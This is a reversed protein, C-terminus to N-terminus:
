VIRGGRWRKMLALAAIFGACGLGAMALFAGGEYARYLPGAALSVLGMVVGATISAYLGQASASLASPIAQQLFQMAGLHAAGFTIGHLAQAAFLVPLAPDLATVAWRLMSAFGAVAILQVPGLWRGVKVGYAFLVIEAVVGIGWLAGIVAPQIGAATWHLTGFIYYLAHASQIASAAALFIWLDPKRMLTVMDAFRLVPRAMEPGEANFRRIVGDAPLLYAAAVVLVASSIFLWLAAPPGWIDVAAGGAATMAIYSLSGWLRMRGYDARGARVGALAVADTVPIVSMWFVTFLLVVIFIQPFGDTWPLLSASLLSGWSLLTLLGAPRGLRDAWFAVAPIFAARLFVPVAYVLSIQFDTLGRSKLWLPLFPM